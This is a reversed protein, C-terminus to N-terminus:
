PESIDKFRGRSGRTSRCGGSRLRFKIFGQGGEGWFIILLNMVLKQHMLQVWRVVRGEDSRDKMKKAKQESCLKVVKTM